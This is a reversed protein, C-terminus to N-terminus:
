KEPTQLTVFSDKALFVMLRGGQMLVIAHVM